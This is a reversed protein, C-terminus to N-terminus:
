RGACDFCVPGCRSFERALAGDLAFTRGNAALSRDLDDLSADMAKKVDILDRLPELYRSWFHNIIEFRERTSRRERNSKLKIM